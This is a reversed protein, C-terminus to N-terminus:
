RGYHKPAVINKLQYRNLRKRLEKPYNIIEQATQVSNKIGTSSSSGTEENSKKYPVGYDKSVKAATTSVKINKGANTLIKGVPAIPSNGNSSNQKKFNTYNKAQEASSKAMSGTKTAIKKIGSLPDDDRRDEKKKKIHYLESM